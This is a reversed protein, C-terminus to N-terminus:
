VIMSYRSDSLRDAKLNFAAGVRSRDRDGAASHWASWGGVHLAGLSKM